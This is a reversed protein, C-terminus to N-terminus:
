SSEEDGKQESTKKSDSKSEEPAPIKSFRSTTSGTYASLRMKQVTDLKVMGPDTEQLEQVIGGPMALAGMLVQADGIARIVVPSSIPTGEVHIVPGVCRFSTGTSVRHTNVSIAEAGAAWLENVMRLVDMDHIIQEMAFGGTKKSDRLTVVIGPGEVETLGAVLKTEQLTENLVKSSGTQDALAEELKTSKERLSAVEDRLKANTEQASIPGQGVRTQLNPSAQMLRSNRNENTVWALAIMVGLLLSMLSVPFVWANNGIRSVFPNM